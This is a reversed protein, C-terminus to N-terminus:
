DGGTTGLKKWLEYNLSLPCKKLSGVYDKVAKIIEKEYYEASGVVVRGIGYKHAAKKIIRLDVRIEKKIDSVGLMGISKKETLVMNYQPRYKLILRSELEDMEKYGSCVIFFARSFEKEYQHQAIRGITKGKSKGVYLIEGDRDTLFYVCPKLPIALETAMAQDKINM